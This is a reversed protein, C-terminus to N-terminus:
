GLASQLWDTYKKEWIIVNNQKTQDADGAKALTQTELEENELSGRRSLRVACQELEPEM